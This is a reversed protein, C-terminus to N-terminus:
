PLGAFTSSETLVVTEGVAEVRHRRREVAYHTLRRASRPLRARTEEPLVFHGDDETVCNIALIGGVRVDMVINTHDEEESPTWRIPSDLTLRRATVGDVTIAPLTVPGLGSFDGDPMEVEVAGIVDTQAGDIWSYIYETGRSLVLPRRARREDSVPLAIGPRIYESFGGEELPESDSFTVGAVVGNLRCGVAIADAYRQRIEALRAGMGGDNAREFTASVTTVARPPVDDVFSSSGRAVDVVFRYAEADAILRDLDALVSPAQVARDVRDQDLSIGDSGFTCASITTALLLPAASCRFPRAM